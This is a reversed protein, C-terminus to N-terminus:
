AIYEVTNYGYNHTIPHQSNEQIEKGISYQDSESSNFSRKKQNPSRNRNSDNMQVNLMNLDINKQSLQETINPIIKQFENLAHESNVVITGQNIGTEQSFRMEIEGMEGTNVRFNVNYKQSIMSKEVMAVIKEVATATAIRSFGESIIKPQVITKEVTKQQWYQNEPNESAEKHGSSATSSNGKDIKQQSSVSESASNKIPNQDRLKPDQTKAANESETIQAAMNKPTDPETQQSISHMVNKPNATIKETSDIVNVDQHDPGGPMIRSSSMQSSSKASIPNANKSISETQITANLIKANMSALKQDVERVESNVMPKGPSTTNAIQKHITNDTKHGSKESSDMLGQIQNRVSTPAIEKAFSHPTSQKQIAQNVVSIGSQIGQKVPSMTEGIQNNLLSQNSKFHSNQIKQRPSINQFNRVQGQQVSQSNLINVAIHQFPKQDSDTGNFVLSPIQNAPTSQTTTNALTVFHSIPSRDMFANTSKTDSGPVLINNEQPVIQGTTVPRLPNTRIKGLQDIIPNANITLCQDTTIKRNKNNASHANVSNTSINSPISGSPNFNSQTWQIGRLDPVQRTMIVPNVSQSNPQTHATLAKIPRFVFTPNPFNDAPKNQADSNLSYKTLHVTNGAAQNQLKINAIQRIKNTLLNLFNVKLPKEKGRGNFLLATLNMKNPTTTNVTKM